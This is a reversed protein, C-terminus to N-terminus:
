TVARWRTRHPGLWPPTTAPLTVDRNYHVLGGAAAPAVIEFNSGDVNQVFGISYLRNCSCGVASCDLASGQKEVVENACGSSGAAVALAVISALQRMVGTNAPPRILTRKRPAPTGSTTSDVTIM